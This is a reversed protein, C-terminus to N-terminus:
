NGFFYFTLGLNGYIGGSTNTSRTTDDDLRSTGNDNIETFEPLGGAVNHRLFGRVDANIAFFRSVRLEAGIGLEGGAYTFESTSVFGGGRTTRGQGAFSMGGGILAYVQFRHEPNFFVLMDATVPVEWREAGHYDQGYWAGIGIDFALHPIPRIRAAGSFGGMTIRDTFMGGFQLHLGIDFDPVMEYRVRRRTEVGVVVSGRPPPPPMVPVTTVVVHGSVVPPAVVVPPPPAVVVPPPPPAVVVPPPPPPVVVVPPPPPPPPDGDIGIRLHGEIPGVDVEACLLDGPRCRADQAHATSVAAGSLAAVLGLFSVATRMRDTM